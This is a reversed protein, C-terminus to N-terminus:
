CTEYLLCTNDSATNYVFQLEYLLQKKVYFHSDPKCFVGNMKVDICLNLFGDKQQM